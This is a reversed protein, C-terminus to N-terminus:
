YGHKRRYKWCRRRQWRPGNRTMWPLREGRQHNKHRHKWTRRVAPSVKMRNKNGKKRQSRFHDHRHARYSGHLGSAVVIMQKVNRYRHLSFKLAFTAIADIDVKHKRKDKRIQHVWKRKPLAEKLAGVKLDAPRRVQMLYAHNDTIAATGAPTDSTPSNQKSNTQGNLDVPGDPYAGKQAGVGALKPELQVFSKPAAEHIETDNSSDDIGNLPSTM